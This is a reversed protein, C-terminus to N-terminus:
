DAVNILLGELKIHVPQPIIEKRDKPLNIHPLKPINHNTMM